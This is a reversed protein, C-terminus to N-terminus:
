QKKGVEFRVMSQNGQEDLIILQHPGAEEPHAEIQHVSATSGLYVDNLHWHIKTGSTKSVAEFLLPQTKGDLDRTPTLTVGSHPYIIEINEHSQDSVCDPHWPPLEQFTPHKQKYYWAEAPTLIMWNEAVGNPDCALSTRHKKDATLFVPHHYDCPKSNTCSQPITRLEPVPCHRSARAGSNKCILVEHLDDYPPSFSSTSPLLDFLSFMLPAAARTGIVGPRGTGDANGVWVAVVYEQTAGIAWADRFGFSTGTKWAIRRSSGMSEWESIDDPRRVNELAKFTHYVAGASFYTPENQFSRTAQITRGDARLPSFSSPYMGNNDRYEHLTRTMYTWAQTLEWLTTEGGGLILSLGYHSSPKNLGKFGLKLLQNHFASVGYQKLQLVTPINLSRALAEGAPVLGEYSESFNKPTFGGLNVPLDRVLLDPTMLSEDLMAAYLFPKLSSGPSRPAPIVDVFSGNSGSASNGLYALVEGTKADAILAAANHVLNASLRESHENLVDEAKQQLNKSLSSNHRHTKVDSKEFHHLLHMALQPLDAPQEPLEEQLSLELTLSDFHGADHLSTLLRNRKERLASRNRGPHILGPANPLVALTAAEAWSLDHPSRSFYRWAATEIGVVNGGMPAHTCYFQLIENKTYRTELRFARLVEKIKEFISRDPNNRSLRVVQMSLTSGGSVVRKAAINQKVARAMSPLYVGPHDYFHKDEFHILATTFRLPLSDGPAFRWQGDAAIRASLLQGKADYLVPALPKDFLQDPLSFWFWILVAAFLLRKFKSAPTRFGLYMSRLYTSLISLFVPKLLRICKFLIHLQLNPFSM